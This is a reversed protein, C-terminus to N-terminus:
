ARDVSEEPFSAAVSAQLQKAAYENSKEQKEIAKYQRYKDTMHNMAKIAKRRWAQYDKPSLRAGSIDTREKSSLQLEVDRISRLLMDAIERRAEVSQQTPDLDMLSKIDHRM